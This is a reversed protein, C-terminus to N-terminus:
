RGISYNFFIGSQPYQVSPGIVLVLIFRNTQSVLAAPSQRGSYQGIRQDTTEEGDYIFLTSDSRRSNLSIDVPKLLVAENKPAEIVWRCTQNLPYADGYGQSAFQKVNWEALYSGGCTATVAKECTLGHYYTTDTTICTCEYKEELKNECLAGNKCFGKACMNEVITYNALFGRYNDQNDTTLVLRIVNSTSIFPNKYNYRTIKGGNNIISGDVGDYAVLSDSSDISFGIMFYLLVAKGEPATITWTCQIDPPYGLVTYGNSYNPSAFRVIQQTAQM